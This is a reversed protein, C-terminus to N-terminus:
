TTPSTSGHNSLGSVDVKAASAPSEVHDLPEGFGGM